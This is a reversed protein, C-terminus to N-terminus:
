AATPMPFTSLDVTKQEGAALSVDVCSYQAGELCITYNGAPASLSYFGNGDSLTTNIVANGSVLVVDLQAEYNKCSIVEGASANGSCFTSYTTGNITAPKASSVCATASLVLLLFIWKM